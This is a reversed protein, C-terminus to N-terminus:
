GNAPAAPPRGDQAWDLIVPPRRRVPPPPAPVQAALEDAAATIRRAAAAVATTWVEAAEPDLGRPPRIEAAIRAARELAAAEVLLVLDEATGARSWRGSIRAQGLM